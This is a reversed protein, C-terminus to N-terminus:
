MPCFMRRIALIAVSDSYHIITAYTCIINSVAFQLFVVSERCFQLVAKGMRLVLPDSIM